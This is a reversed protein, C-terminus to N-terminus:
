KKDEGELIMIFQEKSEKYLNDIDTDLRIVNDELRRLRYYLYISLTSTLVCISLMFINVLM